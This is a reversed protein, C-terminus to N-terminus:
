LLHFVKVNRTAARRTRREIMDALGGSQGIDVHNLSRGAVHAPIFINFTVGSSSHIYTITGSRRLASNLWLESGKGVRAKHSPFKAGCMRGRLEPTQALHPHPYIQSQLYVEDKGPDPMPALPCRIPKKSRTTRTIHSGAVTGAKRALKSVNNTILSKVGDLKPTQSPGKIVHKHAQGMHHDGSDTSSKEAVNRFITHTAKRM